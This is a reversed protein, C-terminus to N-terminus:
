KAIQVTKKNQYQSGLRESGYPNKVGRLYYYVQGFAIVEGTKVITGPLKPQQSFPGRYGPDAWSGKCWSLASWQSTRGELIARRVATDDGLGFTAEYVQVGIHASLEFREVTEVILHDFPQVEYGNRIDIQEFLDEFKYESRRSFDLRGINRMRFARDSAHFKIFGRKTELKPTIDFYGADRAAFVQEDTSLPVAMDLSRIQEGLQYFPNNKKMPLGLITTEPCDAFPDVQLFLQAFREGVPVDIPMKTANFMQIETNREDLLFYGADPPIGQGLRRMSSRCDVVPAFYCINLAPWWPRVNIRETLYVGTKSRAPITVYGPRETELPSEVSDDDDDDYHFLPRPRNYPSLSAIKLDLSSPQIRTTDSLDLPPDITVLGQELAQQIGRDSLMPLSQLGSDLPGPLGGM